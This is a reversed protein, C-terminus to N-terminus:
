EDDRVCLIYVLAVAGSATAITLSDSKEIVHEADDVTTNRVVAKDAVNLDMAATIATSGNQVTVTDAAGGAATAVCWADVVRFRFGPKDLTYSATGSVTQQKLLFTPAGFPNGL